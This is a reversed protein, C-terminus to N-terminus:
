SNNITVVKLSEFSHDGTLTHVFPFFLSTVITVSYARVTSSSPVQRQETFLTAFILNRVAREVCHSDFAPSPSQWSFFLLFPEWQLDCFLILHLTIIQCTCLADEAVTERHSSVPEAIIPHIGQNHNIEKGQSVNVLWVVCRKSHHSGGQSTKVKRRMHKVSQYGPFLQWQLSLKLTYDGLM